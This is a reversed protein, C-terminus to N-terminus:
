HYRKYCNTPPRGRIFRITIKPDEKKLVCLRQREPHIFTQQISEEEEMFASSSRARSEAQEAARYARGWTRHYGMREILPVYGRDWIGSSSM